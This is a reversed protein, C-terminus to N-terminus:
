SVDVFFPEGGKLAEEFEGANDVLDEQDEGAACTVNIQMPTFIGFTLGSVLQNLFSLQTEVRAVGNTCRDMAEVTSPPVLGYIWGSAWNVDITQPGPTLGTEVTAHYCGSLVVLSLIGIALRRM